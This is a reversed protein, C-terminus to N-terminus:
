GVLRLQAPGRANRRSNCRHHAIAVNVRLHLGGAVVPVLHDLTAEEKPVMERCLHCRWGDRDAIELLSFVEHPGTTRLRHKRVRKNFRVACRKSCYKTPKDGSCRAPYLAGCEICAALERPQRMLGKREEYGCTTSCFRQRRRAIFQESCFACTRWPVETVRGDLKKLRKGEAVKVGHTGRLIPDDMPQYGVKADLPDGNEWWRKYHLNCWGRALHPRQCGDISCLRM